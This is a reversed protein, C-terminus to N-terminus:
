IRAYKKCINLLLLLPSKRTQIAEDLCEPPQSFERFNHLGDVADQTQMVTEFEGLGRTNLPPLIFM